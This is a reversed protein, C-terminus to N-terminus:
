KTQEQILEKSNEVESEALLEDITCGLAKAIAQATQISPKRIESEIHSIAGQTLGTKQALQIQSIGKAKRLKELNM